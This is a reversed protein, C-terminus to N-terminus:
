AEVVVFHLSYRVRNGTMPILRLRIRRKGPALRVIQAERGRFRLCDRWGLPAITPAAHILTHAVQRKMARIHKAHMNLKPALTSRVEKKTANSDACTLNM